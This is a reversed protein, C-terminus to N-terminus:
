RSYTCELGRPSSSSWASTCVAALLAATSTTVNRWTRKEATLIPWTKAPLLDWNATCSIMPPPADQTTARHLFVRVFSVTAALIKGASSWEQTPWDSTLRQAKTNSGSLPWTWRGAAAARDKSRLSARESANMGALAHVVREEHLTQVGESVVTRIAQHQLHQGQVEPFSQLDSLPLRQRQRVNSRNRLLYAM